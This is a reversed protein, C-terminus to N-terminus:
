AAAQPDSRPTVASRRRSARPPWLRHQLRAGNKELVSPAVPHREPARTPHGPTPSELSQRSSTPNPTVAGAPLGGVGAARQAGRHM